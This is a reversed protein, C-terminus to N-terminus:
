NAKVAQTSRLFPIEFHVGAGMENLLDMQSFTGADLLDYIPIDSQRAKPSRYPRILRAEEQSSTAMSM